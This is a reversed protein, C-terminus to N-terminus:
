PEPIMTLTVDTVDKIFEPLRRPNVYRYWWYWLVMDMDGARRGPRIMLTAQSGGPDYGSVNCIRALQPHPSFQAWFADLDVGPDFGIRSEGGWVSEFMSSWDYSIYPSFTVEPALPFEDDIWYTSAPCPPIDRLHMEVSHDKIWRAQWSILGGVRSVGFALVLSALIVVGARSIRGDNGRCLAKILGVIVVGVGISILLSFRTEWGFVDSAKRVLIYPTMALLLLVAGFAILSGSSTSSDFSVAAGPRIRSYAFVAGAVGVLWLVPFELLKILTENLQLVVANPIFHIFGLMIEQPSLTIRNNGEYWGHRPSVVEKVVWFVFPLVLFDVHRLLYRKAAAVLSLKKMRRVLFIMFLIFGFHFVLLSNTTYSAFLLVLSLLRLVLKGGGHAYFSRVALYVGALFLLYGVHYPLVILSFTTRFAPFTLQIVSVFLSESPSLMRSHYCILYCLVASLAIALFAMLRYGFIIDPFSGAARYFEEFFMLGAESFWEHLVPWSETTLHSYLLYGDHYVGDMLLM